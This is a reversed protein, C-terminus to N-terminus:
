SAWKMGKSAYEYVLDYLKQSKNQFLEKDYSEPLDIDLVEEIASKVKILTKDKPM